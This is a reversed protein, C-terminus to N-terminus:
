IPGIGAAVASGAGGSSGGATRGKAWPNFTRGRLLRIGMLEFYGASAINSQVATARSLGERERGEITVAVASRSGDLPLSHPHPVM